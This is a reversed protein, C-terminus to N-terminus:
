LNPLRELIENEEAEKIKKECGSTAGGPVFKVGLKAFFPAGKITSALLNTMASPHLRGQRSMRADGSAARARVVNSGGMKRRHQSLPVCALEMGHGRLNDHLLHVRASPQAGRHLTNHVASLTTKASKWTTQASKFQGDGPKREVINLANGLTQMIVTNNGKQCFKIHCDTPFRELIDHKAVNDV